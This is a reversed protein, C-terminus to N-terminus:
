TLLAGIEYVSPSLASAPEESRVTSPLAAAVGSDPANQPATTVSLVRLKISRTDIGSYRAAVENGGTALIRRGFTTIKLVLHGVVGFVLTWVLLIPVPGLSGGGFLFAYTRDIIPIAATDSVWMSVGTSIGMMALTTLFSPIGVRTTILGNFLGVVIGTAVGAAVGAPMGTARIAMATVVSSFGALLGVSLDIEGAALVFTMAVAMAAIM